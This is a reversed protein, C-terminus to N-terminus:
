RWLFGFVMMPIKGLSFDYTRLLRWSSIKRAEQVPKRQRWVRGLGRVADIKARWYVQSQGIAMYYLGVVVCMLLHIPLVLPLLRGPTNKVMAWVLNRHGYYTAFGPYKSVIASGIHQVTAEPVYLCRMGRLQMRFGLDVDEMFCFFADDFGGIETVAKANYMAAGACPSFVDRSRHKQPRYKRNHLNRWALGSIHYSDGAGDITDENLMMRSAFSSYHPHDTAARELKEIFDTAPFADPNLTIFFDANENQQFAINNATAFGLNSDLRHIILRERAPLSSVSDDQSANDIVCITDAPRTQRILHDICKALLEGSNYNVIVVVINMLLLLENAVVTHRNKLPADVDV